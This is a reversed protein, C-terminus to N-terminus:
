SQQDKHYTKTDLMSFAPPHIWLPEMTGSLATTNIQPLPEFEQPLSSKWDYLMGFITDARKARMTLDLEGSAVEEDSCYDVARAFLWIVRAALEYSTLAALAKTPTWFSLTKRRERFAAWIDQRLWAWWVASKLGGTEGQILQSRQIWFVGKLHREWGSGSGSDDLMEYMSVILATALLELSITYAEACMAKQLYHLTEYYYQLGVNRDREAPSADPSISLQRSSLALIATMLGADHMALHPVM